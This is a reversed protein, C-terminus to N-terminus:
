FVRLKLEATVLPLFWNTTPSSVAANPTPASNRPLSNPCRSELTLSQCCSACQCLSGSSAICTQVTHSFCRIIRHHVDQPSKSGRKGRRQGQSLLRVLPLRRKRSERGGGKGWVHACVSSREFLEPLYVPHPLLLLLALNSLGRSTDQGKGDREMERVRHWIEVGPVFLWTNTM